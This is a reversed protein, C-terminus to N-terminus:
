LLLAELRAQVDELAEQSVEQGDALSDRLDRIKSMTEHIADSADEGQMKVTEELYDLTGDLKAIAEDPKGALIKARGDLFGSMAQLFRKQVLLDGEVLGVTQDVVEQSFEQLQQKVEEPPQRGVYFGAWFVAGLLVVIALLKKGTHSKEM